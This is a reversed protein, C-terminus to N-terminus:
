GTRVRTVSLRWVRIDEVMVRLRYHDTGDEVFRHEALQKPLEEGRVTYEGEDLAREFADRASPTLEDFTITESEAADGERVLEVSLHSRVVDRGTDSKSIEYVHERYRVYEANWLVRPIRNAAREVSARDISRQFLVKGPGTLSEYPTADESRSPSENPSPPTSDSASETNVTPSPESTSPSSCGGTVPLLIAAGKWLMRRRSLAM